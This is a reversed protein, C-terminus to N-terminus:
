SQLYAELLLVLWVESTFFMPLAVAATKPQLDWAVDGWFFFHKLVCQGHPTQPPTEKPKLSLDCLVKKEQHQAPPFDENCNIVVPVPFSQGLHM